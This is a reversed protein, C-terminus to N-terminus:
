HNQAPNAAVLDNMEEEIEEVTRLLEPADDHACAPTEDAADDAGCDSTWSGPSATKADTPPGVQETEVPVDVPPTPMGRLQANAERCYDYSFRLRRGVPKGGTPPTYQFFSKPTTKELLVRDQWEIGTKLRFFHMFHDMERRWKGSCCSWRHYKPRSDGKRKLFKATFWYLHPKANSEWLCLTFREKPEGSETERVIDVQYPFLERDRYIHYFNTNVFKDGERIGREIRARERQAALKKAAISRMSYEAEAQKKEYVTSFEFWDYHVIHFRKGRKLAEKVTTAGDDAGVITLKACDHGELSLACPWDLWMAEAKGRPVKTNFQERTCLLHTVTEDFDETFVGRRLSTWQKLNQVTLQGPLPGAAAIVRDRFIQRPM